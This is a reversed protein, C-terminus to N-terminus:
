RELLRHPDEAHISAEVSGLRLELMRTCRPWADQTHARRPSAATTPMDQASPWVPVEDKLPHPTPHQSQRQRRTGTFLVGLGWSMDRDSLSPTGSTLLKRGPLNPSGPAKARLPRELQAAQFVAHSSYWGTQPLDILCAFVHTGPPLPFSGSTPDLVTLLSWSSRQTPSRASPSFRSSLQHQFQTLTRCAPTSPWRRTRRRGGTRWLTRSQTGPQKTTVAMKLCALGPSWNQSPHFKPFASSPTSALRWPTQISISLGTQLKQCSYRPCCRTGQSRDGRGERCALLRTRVETEGPFGNLSVKRQLVGCWRHLPALTWITMVRKMYWLGIRSAM